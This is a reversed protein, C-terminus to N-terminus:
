RASATARRLSMIGIALAAVAPVAQWLVLLVLLLRLMGLGGGALDTEDVLRKLRDLEGRLVGFDAALRRSDEGNRGLAAVTTALDASLASAEDAVLRFDDGLGTFPRTGLIELDMAEALGRLSSALENGLDAARQAATATAGLSTAVGDAAAGADTMASVSADLSRSLTQQQAELQGALAALPASSLVYLGVAAILLGAVGYVVLGIAVRRGVRDIVPVEATLGQEDALSAPGM